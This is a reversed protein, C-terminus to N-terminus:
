ESRFSNYPATNSLNLKFPNIKNDNDIPKIREASPPIMYKNLEYMELEFQKPRLSHIHIFHSINLTNQAWNTNM